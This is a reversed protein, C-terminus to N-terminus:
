LVRNSLLFRDGFFKKKLKGLSSPALSFINSKKPGLGSHKQFTWYDAVAAWQLTLLIHGRAESTQAKQM